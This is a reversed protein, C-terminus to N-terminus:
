AVSMFVFSVLLLISSRESFTRLMMPSIGGASTRHPMAMITTIKAMKSETTRQTFYGYPLPSVINWCMKIKYTARLSTRFNCSLGCSKLQFNLRFRSNQIFYHILYYQQTKLLGINYSGYYQIKSCAGFRIFDLLLYVSIM